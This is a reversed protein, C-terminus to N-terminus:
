AWSSRWVLRASGSGSGSMVVTRYGPDVKPWTGTGALDLRTGAAPNRIMRRTMDVVRTEGSPITGNFQWWFQNSWTLRPDKLPGELFVSMGAPYDGVNEQRGSGGPRLVLESEEVALRPYTASRLSLTFIGYGHGTHTVLPPRTRHVLIQRSLSLDRETVRLWDERTGTLLTQLAERARVFQGHSEALVLGEMTLDRGGYHVDTPFGGDAADFPEDGGRSAGGSSWGEVPSTLGYLSRRDSHFTLGQLSVEFTPPRTLSYPSPTEVPQFGRFQM